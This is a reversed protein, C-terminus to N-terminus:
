QVLSATGTKARESNSKAPKLDPSQELVSASHRRASSAAAHLLEDITQGEDPYRALGFSLRVRAHRGPRVELSLSEVDLRAREYLVVADSASSASVLCVFEDGAVRSLLLTDRLMKDLRAAVESLMRDGVRYGFSDNISRLGVLNLCMVTLLSGHQEASVLEEELRAYLARGNPLGTLPDTQASAKTREHLFAHQLATSALRSVSELL